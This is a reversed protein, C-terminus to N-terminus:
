FQNLLIRCHASCSLEYLLDTYIICEPALGPFGHPALSNGVLPPRQVVHDGARLGAVAHAIESDGGPLFLTFVRAIHELVTIDGLPDLTGRKTQAPMRIRRQLRGDIARDVLHDRGLLRVAIQVGIVDDIAQFPAPGIQLVVMLEVTGTVQDLGGHRVELDGALPLQQVGHDAIHVGDVSHQPGLLALQVAIRPM